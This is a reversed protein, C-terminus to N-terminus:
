AAAAALDAAMRRAADIPAGILELYRFIADAAQETRSAAPKEGAVPFQAELIGQALAEAAIEAELVQKRCAERLDSLDQGPLPERLKRRIKRLPEITGERVERVAAVMAAIDHLSPVPMGREARYCLFLLLNVDAHFRDQLALCIERVPDRGYTRLSYNWFSEMVRTERGEYRAGTM